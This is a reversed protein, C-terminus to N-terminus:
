KPIRHLVSSWMETEEAIRKDFAQRGLYNKPIIMYNVALAKKTSEQQAVQLFFDNYFKQIEPPTGLPLAIGWSAEIRPNIGKIKESFTPVNTLTDLRTEGSIALISIKDSTLMPAVVSLQIVGLQAHGGVIDRLADPGSKYMATTITANKNIKTAIYEAGAQFFLSPVAIPPTTNQQVTKKFDDFTKISSDRSAVLVIPGASLTTIPIVGNHAVTEPTFLPAVTFMSSATAFLTFGDAPSNNAFHNLAIMGGAGPRREIIFTYGSNALADTYPKLAQDTAGPAFGTIITIPKGIPEFALATTCFLFSALIFKIM